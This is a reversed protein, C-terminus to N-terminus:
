QKIEVSTESTSPTAQDIASKAIKEKGEFRNDMISGGIYLGLTSGLLFATTTFADAMLRNDPGFFAIKIIVIGCLILTGFIALRRWFWNREVLKEMM